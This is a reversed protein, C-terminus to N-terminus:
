GANRDSHHVLWRAAMRDGEAAQILRRAETASLPTIEHQRAQPADVLTAPNVAILQWKAAV